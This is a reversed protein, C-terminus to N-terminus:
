ADIRIYPPPCDIRGMDVDANALAIRNRGLEKARYLAADARALLADPTEGSELTAIGASLTVQMGDSFASWDLDGVIMRLRELIFAADPQATQPLILLFEEGGYRGFRDATRINAFISIAFTKLVEDGTPHGFVDNIRKFWDLDILAISLPEGGRRASDLQDDLTRMISRRNLAGTLEDLEALEEIKDYAQKLEVSRRYLKDRLAASLTGLYLSRGFAAILVVVAIFREFSTSQPLSLPRDGFMLLAGVALAILCWDTIAERLTARLAAFSCMVFLSCMFLFGVEPYVWAFAVLVASHIIIQPIVWVHEPWRTCIGAGLLVRYGAVATLGCAAFGFGATLPIVGALGYILLLGSDVLYSLAILDLMTRRQRALRVRISWERSDQAGLSNDEQLPSYIPASVGM